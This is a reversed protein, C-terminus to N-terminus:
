EQEHALVKGSGADVIIEEIGKKGTISIDFSYVLYGREVELEREKVKKDGAAGEAAALAAKEADAMPVKAMAALEAKSHRGSVPTTGTWAEKPEKAEGALAITAALLICFAVPVTRVSRM